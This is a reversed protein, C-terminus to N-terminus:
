KVPKEMEPAPDGLAENVSIEITHCHSKLPLAIPNDDFPRELKSALEDLGFFTYALITNFM